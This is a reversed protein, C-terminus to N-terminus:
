SWVGTAGCGGWQPVLPRAGFLKRVQANLDWLRDVAACSLSRVGGSRPSRAPSRQQPGGYGDGQSLVLVLLACCFALVISEGASRGLGGLVVLFLYLPFKSFPDVAARRSVGYWHHISVPVLLATGEM